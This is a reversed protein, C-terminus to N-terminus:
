FICMVVDPMAGRANIRRYKRVAGATGQILVHSVASEFIKQLAAAELGKEPRLKQAREVVVDVVM